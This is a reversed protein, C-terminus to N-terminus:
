EYEELELAGDCYKQERGMVIDEKSGDSAVEEGIM